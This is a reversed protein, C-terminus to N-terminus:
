AEGRRAHKSDCFPKRLNMGWRGSNSASTRLPGLELSCNSGIRADDASDSPVAANTEGLAEDQHRRNMSGVLLEDRISSNTSPEPSTTKGPSGEVMTAGLTKDNRGKGTQAPGGRGDRMEQPPPAGEGKDGGGCTV